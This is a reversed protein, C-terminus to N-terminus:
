RSQSLGPTRLGVAAPDVGQHVLWVVIDDHGLLAALRLPFRSVPMASNWHRRVAPLDDNVIATLIAQQPSALAPSDVPAAPLMLMYMDMAGLAMIAM